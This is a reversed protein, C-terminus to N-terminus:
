AANHDLEKVLCAEARLKQRGGVKVDTAISSREELVDLVV